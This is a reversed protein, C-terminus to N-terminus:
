PDLPAEPLQGEDEVIEALVRSLVQQRTRADLASIDTEDDAPYMEMYARLERASQTNGKKADLALRAIIDGVAIPTRIIIVKGSSTEVAEAESRTAKDRRAQASRRGAEQPTLGGFSRQRKAGEVHLQDTASREEGGNGVETGVSEASEEEVESGPLLQSTTEVPARDAESHTSM